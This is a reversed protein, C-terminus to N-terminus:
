INYILIEKSIILMLYWFVNVLNFKEREKIHELIYKAKKLDEIGNEYEKTQM